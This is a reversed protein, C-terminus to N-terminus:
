CLQGQHCHEGIGETVQGGAAQSAPELKCLFGPCLPIAVHSFDRSTHATFVSVWAQSSSLDRHGPRLM